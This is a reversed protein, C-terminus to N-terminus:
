KINCHIVISSIETFLPKSIILLIILFILVQVIQNLQKFETWLKKCISLLFHFPKKTLNLLNAIRRNKYCECNSPCGCFLWHRYNCNSEDEWDFSSQTCIIGYKDIHRYYTLHICPKCLRSHVMDKIVVRVVHQSNELPFRREKFVISKKLEELDL